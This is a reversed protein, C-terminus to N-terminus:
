QPPQVRKAQHLNTIRAPLLFARQGPRPDQRREFRSMRNDPVEISVWVSDAKGEGAKPKDVWLFDGRLMGREAQDADTASLPTFLKM